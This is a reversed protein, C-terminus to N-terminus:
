FVEGERCAYAYATEEDERFKELRNLLEKFTEKESVLGIIDKLLEIWRDIHYFSENGTIYLKEATDMFAILFHRYLMRESDNEIAKEAKSYKSAGEVTSQEKEDLVFGDCEVLLQAMLNQIELLNKGM